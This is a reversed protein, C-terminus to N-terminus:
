EAAPKEFVENVADLLQRELRGLPEFVSEM